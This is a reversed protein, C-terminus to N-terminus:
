DNKIKRKAIDSHITGRGVNNAPKNEDLRITARVAKTKQVNSKSSARPSGVVMGTRNYKNGTRAKSETTRKAPKTPAPDHEEEEEVPSTLELLEARRQEMVSLEQYDDAMIKNSRLGRVEDNTM